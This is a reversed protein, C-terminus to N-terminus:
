PVTLPCLDYVNIAMGYAYAPAPCCPANTGRRQHHTLPCRCHCGSPLWGPVDRNCVRCRLSINAFAAKSFLPYFHNLFPFKFGMPIGPFYPLWQYLPWQIYYNLSIQLFPETQVEPSSKQLYLVRRSGAGPCPSKTNM